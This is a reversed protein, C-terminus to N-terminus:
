FPPDKPPNMKYILDGIFSRIKIFGKELLPTTAWEWELWSEHLEDRQKLYRDIEHEVM